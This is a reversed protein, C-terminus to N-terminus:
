NGVTSLAQMLALSPSALDGVAKTAEPADAVEMASTGRIEIVWGAKIVVILDSQYRRGNMTIEYEESQVDKMEPSPAGDFEIAPGLVKAEPYAHKVEAQYRVFAQASTDGSETKVAYISLKAVWLGDAGQRGYDCGVDTGLEKDSSYIQLHWLNLNPFSLPCILGSQVHQAAGDESIIFVGNASPTKALIEAVSPATNVPEAACTAGSLCLALLTGTMTNLVYGLKLKNHM